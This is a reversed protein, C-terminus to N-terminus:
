RGGVTQLFVDELTSRTPVLHRVQVRAKEAAQLVLTADRGSPLTVHLSGDEDPQVACGARVLLQEFVEPTGKIRVEYRTLDRRKLDEIPGQAAVRGRNLVVVRDCVYEVDPLLHSSLIVSIGHRHALSRVLDLMEDRGKPDLGNTPEDLFLLKPDHVIAQALKARQRMGTSYTEIPRYREEDLGVFNLVEHARQIADRRPLGALEGAYAVYQFGSMNIIQADMEPMYGVRQRVDQARVGVELGLVRAQGSTAPILGLLTKIFTSKGAGNPGLLGVAGAPVDVTLPGLAKVPGYHKALDRAQVVPGAPGGM